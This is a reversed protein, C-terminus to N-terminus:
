RPRRRRRTSRMRSWRSRRSHTRCAQMTPILPSRTRSSLRLAIDADCCFSQSYSVEILMRYRPIRQIPMILLSPLDLKNMTKLQQERLFVNLAKDKKQKEALLYAGEPYSNQLSREADWFKFEYRRTGRLSYVAQISGGLDFTLMYLQTQILPRKERLPRWHM